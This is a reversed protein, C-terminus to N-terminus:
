IILWLLVFYLLNILCVSICCLISLTIWVYLYCTSFSGFKMLNNSFPIPFACDLCFEYSQEEVLVFTHWPLLFNVELVNILSVFGMMVKFFSIHCSNQWLHFFAPTVLCSDRNDLALCFHICDELGLQAAAFFESTILNTSYQLVSWLELQSM